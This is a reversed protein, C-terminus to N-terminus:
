LCLALAEDLSCMRNMVCQLRKKLASWYHEIPNLDPSYPPLFIVSQSFSRAIEEIQKKRHFAANDMVLVDGPELLPCLSQRLWEEFLEGDMTGEYQMPSIIEGNRLAAALGLRRYKRGSIKGFVPVGRPSWARSRYFYRDIGTEDLYVIKDSPFDKIKEKFDLVKLSDQEKFTM